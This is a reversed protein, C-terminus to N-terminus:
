IIAIKYANEIYSDDNSNKWRYRCLTLGFPVELKIYAGRFAIGLGQTPPEIWTGDAPNFVKCNDLSFKYNQANTFEDNDAFEIDVNLLDSDQVEDQTPTKIYINKSGQLLYDKEEGRLFIGDDMVSLLQLFQGNRTKKGIQKYIM